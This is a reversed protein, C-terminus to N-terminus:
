PLEMCELLAQASSLRHLGSWFGFSLTHTNYLAMRKARLYSRNSFLNATCESKLKQQLEMSQLAKHPVTLLRCAAQVGAPNRM